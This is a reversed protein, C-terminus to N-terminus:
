KQEFHRLIDNESYQIIHEPKIVINPGSMSTMGIFTSHNDADDLNVFNEPWVFQVKDASVGNIVKLSSQINSMSMQLLILKDAMEAPCWNRRYRKLRKHHKLEGITESKFYSTGFESTSLLELKDIPVPVGIENQVGIFVRHSGSHIRLGHKISNYEDSIGTELFESAFSAWSQAFGTKIASEKSKDELVLCSLLLNSITLWSLVETNFCTLIPKEHHIKDVISKLEHPRYQDIWAPVCFPAQIASALLAFFTELAMSYTMRVLLALYQINNKNEADSNGFTNAIYSFYQPNLGDIFELTMDKINDDWLCFPREGVIFYSHQLHVKKQEPM